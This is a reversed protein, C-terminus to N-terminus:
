SSEDGSPPPVTPASVAGDSAAPETSGDAMRSPADDKNDDATSTAALRRLQTVIDAVGPLSGLLPAYQDYVARVPDPEGEAAVDDITDAMSGRVGHAYLWRAMDLQDAALAMVIAECRRGGVNHADLWEVVDIRGFIAAVMWYNSHPGPTPNDLVLSGERHIRDMTAIDGKAVAGGFALRSDVPIMDNGDSGNTGGARTSLREDGGNNDSDDDDVDDDGSVDGDDDDVAFPGCVRDDENVADFRAHRDLYSAVRSYGMAEAERITVRIDTAVPPPATWPGTTCGEARHEHLFAVVDLHGAVAALDMAATTCGRDCHDHLWRLVNIHGRAAACDMAMTTPAAGGIRVLWVVADLHGNRAAMDVLSMACHSPQTMDLSPGFAMTAVVRSVIDLTATTLRGRKPEGAFAMFLSEINLTELADFPTGLRHLFALVDVHGALAAAKACEAGMTVGRACLIELAEVLGVSCFREPTREGSWREARRAMVEHSDARFCRHAARARCLDRDGLHATIAVVLEPPLAGIGGADHDDNDDDNAVTTM